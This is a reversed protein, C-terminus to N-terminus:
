PFITFASPTLSLYAHRAGGEPQLGGTPISWTVIQRPEDLLEGADDYNVGLWRYTASASVVGSHMNQFSYTLLNEIVHPPTTNVTRLETISAICYGTVFLIDNQAPTLAGEVALTQGWPDDFPGLLENPNEQLLSISSAYCGQVVDPGLTPAVSFTFNYLTPISTQPVDTKLYQNLESFNFNWESLSTDDSVLTITNNIAHSVNLYTANVTPATLQTNPNALIFDGQISTSPSNMMEKVSM